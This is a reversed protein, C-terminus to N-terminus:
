MFKMFVAAVVALLSVAVTSAGNDGTRLMRARFSKDMDTLPVGTRNYTFVVNYKGKDTYTSVAKPKDCMTFVGDKVPTATENGTQIAVSLVSENVALYCNSDDLSVTSAAFPIIGGLDGVAESHTWEMNEFLRAPSITLYHANTKNDVVADAGLGRTSVTSVNFNVSFTDNKPALLTVYLVSTYSIVPAKSDVLCNTGKGATCDVLTTNQGNSDIQLVRYVVGEEKLATADVPYFSFYAFSDNITVHFSGDEVGGTANWKMIDTQGVPLQYDAAAWTVSLLLLVLLKGLM